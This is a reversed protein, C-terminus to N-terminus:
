IQDTLHSVTGPVRVRALRVDSGADADVRPAAVLRDNAHALRGLPNGKFDM